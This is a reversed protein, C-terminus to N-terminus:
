ENDIEEDFREIGDELLTLLRDCGNKIETVYGIDRKLQRRQREKGEPDDLEITRDQRFRYM